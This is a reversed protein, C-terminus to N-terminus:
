RNSSSASESPGSGTGSPRQSALLLVSGYGPAWNGGPDDFDFVGRDKLLAHMQGLRYHPVTMLLHHELHYNVQHPCVTLRALWNAYTTRTNKLRDETNQTCAHEAISRVRIFLSYTTCWSAVWLLYLAPHGAVWLIGFLLANTAVTPAGNRLGELLHQPWPRRELWTIRTSVTYEIFGFDMLLLGFARKAAAIGSLDRLLKRALSARSTPFPAVLDLDPDRETGTYSHHKLHHTRYGEQRLWVPAGCLWTGVVKNLTKSAFLSDHVTEHTLVALGLQQGGIIGIAVLITLPNPAVAVAAMAGGILGWSWLVSLAGRVDSAQLLDRIEDRTLLDSAKANQM